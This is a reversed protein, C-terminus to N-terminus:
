RGCGERGGEEQGRLAEIVEGGRRVAATAGDM